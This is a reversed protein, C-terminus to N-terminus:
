PPPRSDQTNTPLCPALRAFRPPPLVTPVAIFALALAPAGEATFPFDCLLEGYKVAYSALASIFFLQPLLLRVSHM